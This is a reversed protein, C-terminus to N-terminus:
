RLGLVERQYARFREIDERLADLPVRDREDLAWALGQELVDDAAAPQEMRLFAYGLTAWASTYSPDLDVAYRALAVARAHESRESHLRAQQLFAPAFRPNLATARQFSALRAAETVSSVEHLLGHLYHVAYSESGGAVAAEIWRAAEVRNRQSVHFVGTAEQVVVSAPDLAQADGLLSRAADPSGGWALVGARLAMSEAVPLDRVVFGGTDLGFEFDATLQGFSFRRTYSRLRSEIEGIDGIVREFTEVPDGGQGVLRMYDGLADREALEVDGLLVFHTLAWAQAYFLPVDRPDGRM